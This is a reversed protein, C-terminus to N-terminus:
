DLAGPPYNIQWYLDNDFSLMNKTTYFDLHSIRNSFLKLDDINFGAFHNLYFGLLQQYPYIFDMSESYQYLKDVDINQGAKKYASSISFFGGSYDPRVAIDILTRELDTYRVAKEEIIGIRNPFAPRRVIVLSTNNVQYSETSRRKTTSFAKDVNEQELDERSTRSENKQSRDVSIFLTKPIQQTLEHKVLASFYSLYGGEQINCAFGEISSGSTWYKSPLNMLESSRVESILKDQILKKRFDDFKLYGPLVGTGQFNWLTRRLQEVGRSPTSKIGEKIYTFNKDYLSKRGM